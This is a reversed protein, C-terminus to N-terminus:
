LKVEVNGTALLRAPGTDPIYVLSWTCAKDALFATQEKTLNLLLASPNVNSAEVYMRAYLTDSLLQGQSVFALYHNGQLALPIDPTSIFQAILHWPQGPTVTINHRPGDIAHVLSTCVLTYIM